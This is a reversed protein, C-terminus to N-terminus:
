KAHSLLQLGFLIANETRGQLKAYQYVALLRANFGDIIYGLQADIGTFAAAGEAKGAGAHQYRLLPQIRGIGIDIPVLYSALAMVQYSGIENDGWVKAAEGELDLVGVTSGGAEFLLDGNLENFDSPLASSSSSPVSGGTRHQGGVGLSLVNKTGYYGSSSRYGPEPNLLSLNLRATYLPSTALQDLDFAGVYYRFRGGRVQGWFTVGDGRDNAGYRPGPWPLSATPATLPYNSYTGPLTWTPLAWVTSLSARDSPMPMRGIWLNFADAIEVKAVLDLLAATTSATPDGYSGLFGAQWKLFPHVQGWFVADAEGDSGVDNLKSRSTLDSNQIRLTVRTGVQVTVLEAPTSTPAPAPAPAPAPPPTTPPPSQAPALDLPPTSAPLDPANQAASPSAIGLSLMGAALAATHVYLRPRAKGM